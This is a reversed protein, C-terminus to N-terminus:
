LDKKRVVRLLEQDEPDDAIFRQDDLLELLLDEPTFAVYGKFVFENHIDYISRPKRKSRLYSYCADFIDKNLRLVVPKKSWDYDDETMGMGFLVDLLLHQYEDIDPYQQHCETLYGLAKEYNGNLIYAKGLHAKAYLDEPNDSARDLCYKILGQYDKEELLYFYEDDEYEEFDNFNEIGGKTVTPSSTGSKSPFEIIKTKKNKVM